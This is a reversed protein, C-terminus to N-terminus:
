FVENYRAHLRLTVSAVTFLSLATSRSISFSPVVSFIFLFYWYYWYAGTIIRPTDTLRPWNERTSTGARSPEPNIGRKSLNNKTHVLNESQQNGTQKCCTCKGLSVSRGSRGCRCSGGCGCGRCCSGLLCLLLLGALGLLSSCGCSRCFGGFLGTTKGVDSPRGLAPRKKATHVAPIFGWAWFYIVKRKQM